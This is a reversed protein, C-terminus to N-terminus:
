AVVMTRFATVKCDYGKPAHLQIRKFTAYPPLSTYAFSRSLIVLTDGHSAIDTLKEDEGLPMKVEHWTEHVGYRYLGFPSVTFINGDGTKIVNRVQRYDAGEPLGENFDKFYSAKSDTLWIGGNGYLLLQRCSDVNRMSDVMLDKGIDLTGRLLGGNWNRFEYRSPLYKRSVNVEKILSRHNLLVGSVCFMLMFFSM